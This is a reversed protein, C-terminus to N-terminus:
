KILGARCDVEADARGQYYTDSTQAIIAMTMDRRETYKGYRYGGFGSLGLVVAVYDWIDM